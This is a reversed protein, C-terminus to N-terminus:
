ACVIEALKSEELRTAGVSMDLYVQMSFRKDPREAMRASIDKGIGIGMASKRWAPIRWQSSANAQLRETHITQFGMIFAIKGDRLPALDDKAIGYEKLTAETTALLNGKQIAKIALFREEGEDGEAADLAVSASVLKSITLGANGTGNGYTWDNVAVVTGPPQTPASESNGNPWTLVTGGSHGTYATGFFAGIIEDDQGRNMAMAGTRAYTSAPDILLKVKDLNDVLDGWGYDYPALRRRLHQTNMIPSDSHRSTIKQAASPAVQEMYASEGTIQDELVKGRLRSEVQQALYWVNGTFQQVFADTVTFSM